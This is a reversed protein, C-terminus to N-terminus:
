PSLSVALGLVIVTLIILGAHSPPGHLPLYM